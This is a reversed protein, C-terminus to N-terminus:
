DIDADAQSLIDRVQAQEAKLVTYNKAAEMGKAKEHNFTHAISTFVLIMPSWDIVGKAFSKIASPLKRVQKMASTILKNEKIFKDVNHKKLFKTADPGYKEVLKSAGKGALLMAGISAAVTAVTSLVPHDKTFERATESHKDLGRKAAFTADIVAFTGAWLAASKAFVKLKPIRGIVQPNRVVSALGGAIPLSYWIANSIRRHKKDNVSESAAQVAFQRLTKDDASAFQELEDRTPMRHGFSQAAMSKTSVANVQM